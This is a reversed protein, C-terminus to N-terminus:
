SSNPVSFTVHYQHIPNHLVPTPKYSVNSIVVISSCQDKLPAPSITFELIKKIEAILVPLTQLFLLIKASVIGSRQQASEAEPGMIESEQVCNKFQTKQNVPIM